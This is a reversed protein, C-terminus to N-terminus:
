ELSSFGESVSTNTVTLTCRNKVLVFKLIKLKFKEKHIALGNRQLKLAKVSWKSRELGLGRINRAGVNRTKCSAM